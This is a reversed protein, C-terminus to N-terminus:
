VNSQLPYCTGYSQWWCNIVKCKKQPLLQHCKTTGVFCGKLHGLSPLEQTEMNWCKKRTGPATSLARQNGSQDQRNDEQLVQNPPCLPTASTIPGLQQFFPMWNSMSKLNKSGRRHSLGGTLLFFIDSLRPDQRTPMPHLEVKQHIGMDCFEFLWWEKHKSGDFIWM